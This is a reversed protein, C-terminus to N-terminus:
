FLRGQRMAPLDAAWACLLPVARPDLGEIDLRGGDLLERFEAEVARWAETGRRRALRARSWTQIAWGSRSLWPERRGELEAAHDRQELLVALEIHQPMLGTFLGRPMRSALGTRAFAERFREEHRRHLARPAAGSPGAQGYARQYAPLLDPRHRGVTAFFHEAQRGPRLTLGGALLFDVGADAARAFLALIDEASDAIGPMLPMAMVGTALGRRKAEELLWWREAIPAAGPEFRERVGEDLTAISFSLIARSKQQIDVLLDLDREVLASKTLVSVPLGRELALELATRALGHRAELPQWGDSVGGGIFILGPERLRDLERALLAPAGAKVGIDREFEGEVRYKEARGDCYACGHQCGRYLNMGYRAVFWSDTRGGDRLITKAPEEYSRVVWPEDVM